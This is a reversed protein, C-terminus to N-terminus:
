ELEARDGEDKAEMRRRTLPCLGLSFLLSGLFVVGALPLSWITMRPLTHRRVIRHEGAPLAISRGAATEGSPEAEIVWGPYDIEAFHLTLGDRPVSVTYLTRGPERSELTYRFEDVREDLGPWVDSESAWVWGAAHPNVWGYDTRELGLAELQAQGESDGGRGRVTVLYTANYADMMARGGIAPLMLSSSRTVDLGSAEAPLMASFDDAYTRILLPQYGRMTAIDFVAPRENSIERFFQDYQFGIVDDTYLVRGEDAHPLSQVLGTEPYYWDHFESAAIRHYPAESPLDARREFQDAPLAPRYPQWFRLLDILLIAALLGIAIRPSLRGSLLGFGGAAAVTVMALAWGAAGSAKEILDEAVEPVRSAPLDDFGFLELLHISGIRVTAVILLLTAASAAWALLDARRTDDDSQMLKQIGWGALFCLPAVAWVQWRAPVRFLGFGPVAHFLLKYVPTYRGLAVILGGAFLAGLCVAWRRDLTRERAALAHRVLVIFGFLALLLAAIGIYANMELYGSGSGWYTAEANGADFFEPFLHTLLVRPELSGDTLYEWKSDGGRGAGLAALRSTAALQPFSILLTGLGAAVAHTALLGRRRWTPETVLRGAFWIGIGVWTIHVLQPSGALFQLGGLLGLRATARPNEPGAEEAARWMWPLWALSALFIVVGNTLRLISYGGCMWLGAAVLAPVIDLRSRGFRFFGLGGILLHLMALWTETRAPPLGLWYLWNLPYLVGMQINEFFPYGSFSYPVWTMWFGHRLWAIRLPLDQNVVDGGCLLQTGWVLGGHFLALLGLLVASPLIWERRWCAQDSLHARPAM